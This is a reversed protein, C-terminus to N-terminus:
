GNKESRRRVESLINRSNTYPDGGLSYQTLPPNGPHLIMITYGSIYPRMKLCGQPLRHLDHEIDVVEFLAHIPNKLDSLFFGFTHHRLM